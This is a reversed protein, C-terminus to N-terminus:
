VLSPKNNGRMKLVEQEILTLMITSLVLSDNSMHVDSTKPSTQFIRISGPVKVGDIKRNGHEFFTAFPVPAISVALSLLKLVETRRQSAVAGYLKNSKQANSITLDKISEMSEILDKEMGDVLSVSSSNLLFMKMAANGFTSSAGSAGIVRIKTDKFIADCHPKLANNFLVINDGESFMLVYCTLNNQLVKFYIKCYERKLGKEHIFVTLVPANKKIFHLKNLQTSLLPPEGKKLAAISPYLLHESKLMGSVVPLERLTTYSLIRNRFVPTAAADLTEGSFVSELDHENELVSLCNTLQIAIMKHAM